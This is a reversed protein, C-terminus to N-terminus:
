PALKERLATWAAVMHDALERLDDNSLYPAVDDPEHIMGDYGGGIRGGPGLGVIGCNAYLTNGSSFVLDDGEIKM